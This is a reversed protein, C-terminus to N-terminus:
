GMAVRIMDITKLFDGRAVINRSVNRLMFGGEKLGIVFVYNLNIIVM